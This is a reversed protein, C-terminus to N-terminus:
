YLARRSIRLPAISEPRPRKVHFPACGSATAASSPGRRRVFRAKGGARQHGALPDVLPRRFPGAARAAARPLLLRTPTSPQETPPWRSMRTAARHVGTAPTERSVGVHRGAQASDPSVIVRIPRPAVCAHPDTTPLRHSKRREGGVARSRERLHEVAGTSVHATGPGSGPGLGQVEAPKADCGHTAPIATLPTARALPSPGCASQAL